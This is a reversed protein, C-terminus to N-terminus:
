HGLRMKNNFLYQLTLTENAYGDWGPLNTRFSDDKKKGAPSVVNITPFLPEPFLVSPLRRM